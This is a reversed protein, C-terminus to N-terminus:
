YAYKNRDGSKHVYGKGTSRNDDLLEKMEQDVTLKDHDGSVKTENIQPETEDIATITAPEATQIKLVNLVLNKAAELDEPKIRSEDSDIQKVDFVRLGRAIIDKRTNNKVSAKGDNVQKVLSMASM